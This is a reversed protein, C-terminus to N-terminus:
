AAVVTLTRAASTKSTAGTASVVVRYKAGNDAAVTTVGTTYSAGTAGAINVYTSTGPEARQWQYGLTGTNSLTAVVTFTATEGAVVSVSPSLVGLTIVPTVLELNEVEPAQVASDTTSTSFNWPVKVGDVIAVRSYIKTARKLEGADTQVTVTMEDAALTNDAKDVLYCDGIDGNVVVKYKKSGRQSVIIGDGEVNTGIKARVKLQNGVGSGFYRKNLPRGM